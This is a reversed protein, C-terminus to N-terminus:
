AAVAQTVLLQLHENLPEVLSEPTAAESQRGHAQRAQQAFLSNWKALHEAILNPALETFAPDCVREELYRTVAALHHFGYTGSSGCLKHAFYELEEWGVTQGLGLGHLVTDLARTLEAAKAPIESAYTARLAEIEADATDKVQTM